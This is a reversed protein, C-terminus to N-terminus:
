VVTFFAHILLETLVGLESRFTHKIYFEWICFTDDNCIGVEILVGMVVHRPIFTVGVLQIPNLLKFLQV